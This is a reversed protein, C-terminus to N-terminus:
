PRLMRRAAVLGPVAVLVCYPAFVAWGPFAFAEWLIGVSYLVMTLGFGLAYRGGWKRDIVRLRSRHWWLLLALVVAYVGMSAVLGVPDDRWFTVTALTAAILVALTATFTAGVRSDSRSLEVRDAAEALQARAQDPTLSSM